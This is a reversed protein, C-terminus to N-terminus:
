LRLSTQRKMQELESYTARMGISLQILADSINALAQGLVENDVTRRRAQLMATTMRLLQEATETPSAM